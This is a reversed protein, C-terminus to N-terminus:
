SFLTYPTNVKLDGYTQDLPRKATGIFTNGDVKWADAGSDKTWGCQIGTLPEQDDGACTGVTFSMDNNTPMVGFTVGTMWEWTPTSGNFASSLAMEIINPMVMYIQMMQDKEGGGVKDKMFGKFYVDTGSVWSTLELKANEDDVTTTTTQAYATGLLFAAFTTRMM